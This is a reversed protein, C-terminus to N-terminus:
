DILLRNASIDLIEPSLAVRSRLSADSRELTTSALFTNRFAGPMIHSKRRALLVSNLSGEPLVPSNCESAPMPDPNVKGVIAKKIWKLM